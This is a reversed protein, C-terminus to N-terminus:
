WDFADRDQLEAAANERVNTNDDWLMERVRDTPLSHSSIAASRIMWNEDRSEYLCREPSLQGSQLAAIRVCQRNDLSADGIDWSMQEVREDSLQGSNIAAARLMATDGDIPSCRSLWDADDASVNGNEVYDLASQLSRKGTMHRLDSMSCPHDLTMEYAMHKGIVEERYSRDQVCPPVIDYGVGSRADLSEVDPTYEPLTGPLGRGNKERYKGFRDRPHEAEVFGKNVM